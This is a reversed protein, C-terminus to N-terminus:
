LYKLLLSKLEQKEKEGLKERLLSKVETQEKSNFGSKSLSLIFKLDDSSLNKKIIKMIKLKDGVTIKEQIQSVVPNKGVEGPKTEQYYNEWYDSGTGETDTGQEKEPSENTEGPDIKTINSSDLLEQILEDDFVPINDFQRKILLGGGVVCMVVIYGIILIIIKKQM